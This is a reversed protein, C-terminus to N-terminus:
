KSDKAVPMPITTPQGKDTLIFALFRVPRDPSASRSMLHGRNPAEYFIQGAKYTTPPQDEVQSQLEGELVYVIAPGLHMHQSSGPGPVHTVEVVTAKLTKGDMEPFAQVLLQQASRATGAPAKEPPRQALGLIVAVISLALVNKIM